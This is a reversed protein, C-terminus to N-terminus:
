SLEKTAVILDKASSDFNRALSEMTKMDLKNREFMAFLASPFRTEFNLENAPFLNPSRQVFWAIIGKSWYRLLSVSAALLLMMSAACSVALPFYLPATMKRSAGATLALICIPIIASLIVSPVSFAFWIAGDLEKRAKLFVRYDKHAYSSFAYRSDDFRGLSTNKWLANGWLLTLFVLTAIGMPFLLLWPLLRSVMKSDFIQLISDHRDPALKGDSSKFVDAVQGQEVKSKVDSAAFSALKGDPLRYIVTDPDSESVGEFTSVLRELAPQNGRILSEMKAHVSYVFLVLLGLSLFTLFFFLLSLFRSRM